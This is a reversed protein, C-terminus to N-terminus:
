PSYWMEIQTKHSMSLSPDRLCWTLLHSTNPLNEAGASKEPKNLATALDKAWPATGPHSRSLVTQNKKKNLLVTSLSSPIM